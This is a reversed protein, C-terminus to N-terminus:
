TASSAGGTFLTTWFGTTHVNHATIIQHVFFNSDFEGATEPVLHNIQSCLTFCTTYVFEPLLMFVAAKLSVGHLLVASLHMVGLYLLLRLPVTYSHLYRTRSLSVVQNYPNGVLCMIGGGSSAMLDYVYYIYIFM